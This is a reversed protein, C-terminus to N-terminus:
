NKWVETNSVSIDDVTILGNDGKVEGELYIIRSNRIYSKGTKEHNFM